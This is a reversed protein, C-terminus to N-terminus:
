GNEDEPEYEYTEQWRREWPQLDQEAYPEPAFESEPLPEWPWSLSAM